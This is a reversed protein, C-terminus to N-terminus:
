IDKKGISEAGEQTPRVVSDLKGGFLQSCRELLGTKTLRVQDLSLRQCENVNSSSGNPIALDYVRDSMGELIGSPTNGRSERDDLGSGSRLSTM